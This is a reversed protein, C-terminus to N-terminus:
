RRKNKKKNRNIELSTSLGRNRISFWVLRKKTMVFFRKAYKKLAKQDIDFGLGPKKPVDLKGKQHLFPQQLLADRAEITWGPPNLPYELTMKNQFGSAALMHMNVALGIGNTWTHPSFDLNHERCLRSIKHTQAIGGTFLADPQLIDFCKREIMMKLEPFGSSNLEGGSIPVRSSRVLASLDDYADMPLPEELWKIGHDACFGAFRQARKLDWLPADSIITVRWGQNADVAFKVKDDFAKVTEGVHKEDVKEDFAHVRIKIDRFGQEFLKEAQKIRESPEKIEGTSAYLSLRCPTGGLLECVPKGAAKGKIDWFAPEIWYNRHGLYSMERLRQQILEIDEADEGILYPGVIDGLGSREKGMAPGASYGTLGSGATVRILTFRNEKQPFGPIWSPYFPAPLPYEVHFLEIKKIPNM